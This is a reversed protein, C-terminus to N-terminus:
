AANRSLADGAVGGGLRRLAIWAALAFWGFYLAYTLRLAYGPSTRLAPLLDATLSTVNAIMAVAVVPGLLGLARWGRRRGAGLALLLVGPLFALLSITLMAVHLQAAREDPHQPDYAFVGNGALALGSILLLWLGIRGGFGVADRRMALALAYAFAMVLLGPVIFGLVNWAGAWAMGDAGLLSVAHQAHLYGPTAAAFALLAAAFIVGALWGAHLAIDAIRNM